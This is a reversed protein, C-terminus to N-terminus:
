SKIKLKSLTSFTLGEINKESPIILSIIYGSFVCGMVSIAGYLYVSVDTFFKALVALAVGMIIGGIAGSESGKDTFIGLIFIGALGGGLIGLVASFLDFIFQVNLFAIAMASLTGFAGAIITTYRAIKLAMSASPKYRFREFIDSYFTAAISNMSNSLSSQSAAFIGAIVLGAVGIPLQQVVFYPLVNGVDQPPIVSSNVNYFIFLITGLGFFIITAPMTIIANFWLSRSTQKEDKVTLYKQIVTQDSTYPIINLFFFGVICVWLNLNDIGWNLHFLTFKHYKIGESFITSLGGPINLIALILCLIAGGMLIIVQAVDTWIVAEIGGLVTYIICIIGMIAITLYINIGTVANIAAAPLYLIIGMRGMQFLIFSICGLLRVHVNFRHELYEYGSTVNLRRFFPVYYKVVIPVTLLILFSGIALSWDTAYVIAPIAMFSIASLQSAYISFGSAWWPIKGGATFFTDTTQKKKGYWIGVFLMLLLYSILTAWNIVGLSDKRQIQNLNRETILLPRIVGRIRLIDKKISFDTKQVSFVPINSLALWYDQKDLLFSLITYLGSNYKSNNKNLYYRRYDNLFLYHLSSPVQMYKKFRNAIRSRNWNIRCKLSAEISYFPIMKIHSYIIKDDNIIARNHIANSIHASLTISNNVNSIFTDFELQIPNAFLFKSHLLSTPAAFNIIPIIMFSLLMLCVRWYQNGKAIVKCFVEGFIFRVLKDM